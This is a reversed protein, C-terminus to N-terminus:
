QEEVAAADQNTGAIAVVAAKGEAVTTKNSHKNCDVLGCVRSARTGLNPAYCQSEREDVFEAAFQEFDLLKMLKLVELALKWAQDNGGRRNIAFLDKETGANVIGRYKIKHTVLKRGRDVQQQAAEDSVAGKGHPAISQANDATHNLVRLALQRHQRPKLSENQDVLNKIAVDIDENDHENVGGEEKEKELAKQTREAEIAATADDLLKQYQKTSDSGYLSDYKRDYEDRACRRIAKGHHRLVSCGLQVPTKTILTALRFMLDDATGTASRLARHFIVKNFFTPKYLIGGTGTPMLLMEERNYALVVPWTHHRNSKHPEANCISTRRARLAVISNPNEGTKYYKTEKGRTHLYQEHQKQHYKRVLEGNILVMAEDKIGVFTRFWRIIYFNSNEYPPKQDQIAKLYGDTKLAMLLEYTEM